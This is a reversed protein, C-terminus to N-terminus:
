EEEVEIIRFDDIVCPFLPQQRRIVGGAVVQRAHPVLAPDAFTCNGEAILQDNLYLKRTKGNNQWLLQIKYWQGAKVEAPAAIIFKQHAPSAFGTLDHKVRGRYEAFLLRFKGNKRELACFAYEDAHELAWEAGSLIEWDTVGAIPLLFDRNDAPFNKFNIFFEMKGARSSFNDEAKYIVPSYFLETGNETEVMGSTVWLGATGNRGSETLGATILADGDGDRSEACITDDFNASLLAEGAAHSCCAGALLATCCFHTFKMKNEKNIESNTLGRFTTFIKM